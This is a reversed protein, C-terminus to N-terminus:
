QIPSWILLNQFFAVIGAVYPAVGLVDTLYFLLMVSPATSFIGVGIAGVSFRICDYTNQTNMM